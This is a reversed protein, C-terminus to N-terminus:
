VLRPKLKYGVCPLCPPSANSASSRVLVRAARRQTFVAYTLPFVGRRFACLRGQLLHGSPRPTM